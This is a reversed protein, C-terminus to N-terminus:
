IAKRERGLQQQQQQQSSKRRSIGRPRSTCIAQADTLDFELSIDLHSAILHGVVAGLRGARDKLYAAYDEFVDMHRELTPVADALAQLSRHYRDLFADPVVDAEHTDFSLTLHALLARSTKQHRLANSLDTQVEATAQAWSTLRKTDVPEPPPHSEDSGFGTATEIMRITQLELENTQEDFFRLMYFSSVFSLLHPTFLYFRYTDLVDRFPAWPDPRRRLFLGRTVMTKRNFTWVIAYTPTGVFTTVPSESGNYEHFGDYDRAIMYLACPDADMAEFLAKFTGKSIALTVDVDRPICILKLSAEATKNDSDVPEKTVFAPLDDEQVLWENFAPGNDFAGIEIVNYRYDAPLPRFKQSREFTLEALSKIGDM